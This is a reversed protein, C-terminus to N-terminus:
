NAKQTEIENLRHEHLHQQWETRELGYAKPWRSKIMDAERESMEAHKNYKLRERRGKITDRQSEAQKRLYAIFDLKDSM